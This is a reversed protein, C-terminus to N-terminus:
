LTCRRKLVSYKLPFQLDEPSWLGKGVGLAAQSALSHKLITNIYHRTKQRLPKVQDGFVPSLLPLLQEFCRQRGNYVTWDSFKPHAAAHLSCHFCDHRPVERFMGLHWEVSYGGQIRDITVCYCLESFEEKSCLGEM